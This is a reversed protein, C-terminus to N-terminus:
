DNCVYLIDLYYGQEIALQSILIPLSQNIPEASVITIATTNDRGTNGGEASDYGNIYSTLYPYLEFGNFNAFITNEANDVSRIADYVFANTAVTLKGRLRVTLYTCNKVTLTYQQEKIKLTYIKAM